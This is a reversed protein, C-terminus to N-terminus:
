RTAGIEDSDGGWFRRGTRRVFVDELTPRGVTISEIEGPFAEVMDPVMAHGNAAELRLAGDVVEVSTQFREGLKEGLSAADACRVTIVEGGISQKLADPTDMAVVRGHDLIALRDCHDAEELLHTTLLCTVGDRDRLQKLQAMLAIRAGPDLGTSPEDLILIRPGHLLTKAIEVRRRLGGSLTEVRDSTRDSLGFQDLQSTCRERLVAGSLGYLMGHHRLNELVSLKGDVSPNQFVVGILRRVAAPDAVVDVGGVLATGSAPRLLTALIKFLTTKGGGNPGLLGFISPGEVAFSVGDLAVRDDYRHVLDYIEVANHGSM